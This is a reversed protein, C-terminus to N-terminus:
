IIVKIQLLKNEKILNTADMEKWFSQGCTTVKVLAAFEDRIKEHFKSVEESDM